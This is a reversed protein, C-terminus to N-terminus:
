TTSATDCSPSGSLPRCGAHLEDAGCIELVILGGSALGTCVWLDEGSPLLVFLFGIWMAIVYLLGVLSAAFSIWKIQQREEGMSRRFRLVLSLVSAVM